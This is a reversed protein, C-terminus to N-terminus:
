KQKILLLANTTELHAFTASQSSDAYSRVPAPGSSQRVADTDVTVTITSATNHVNRLSRQYDLKYNCHQTINLAVNM